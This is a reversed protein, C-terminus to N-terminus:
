LVNKKWNNVTYRQQLHSTREEDSKNKIRYDDITNGWVTLILNEELSRSFKFVGKHHSTLRM